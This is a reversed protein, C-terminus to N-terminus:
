SAFMWNIFRRRFRKAPTIFVAVERMSSAIEVGSSDRVCLGVRLSRNGARLLFSDLSLGVSGRLGSRQIDHSRIRRVFGAREPDLALHNGGHQRLLGVGALMQVVHGREDLVRLELQAERGSSHAADGHLLYSATLVSQQCSAEFTRIVFAAGPATGSTSDRASEISAGEEDPFEAAGETGIIKVAGLRRARQLGTAPKAKPLLLPQVGACLVRSFPGVLALEIQVAPGEVERLAQPLVSFQFAPSRWSPTTTSCEANLQLSGHEDRTMGDLARVPHGNGDYIRLQARLRSPVDGYATFRGTVELQSEGQERWELSTFEMASGLSPDVEFAGIAQPALWPLPECGAGEGDRPHPWEISRSVRACERGSADRVCLVLDAPTGPALAPAALPLHIAVSDLTYQFDARPLPQVVAFAPLGSARLVHPRQGRWSEWGSRTEVSVGGVQLEGELWLSGRGSPVNRYSCLVTCVGQGAVTITPVVGLLVLESQARADFRQLTRVRDECWRLLYLGTDRRVSAFHRSATDGEALHRYLAQLLRVMPPEAELRQAALALSEWSLRRETLLYVLSEVTAHLAEPDEARLRGRAESALLRVDPM